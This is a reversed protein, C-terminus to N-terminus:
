VVPPVLDGRSKGASHGRKKPPLAVGSHQIAAARAICDAAWQEEQAKVEATPVIFPNTHLRIGYSLGKNPCACKKGVLMGCLCTRTASRPDDKCDVCYQWKKGHAPCKTLSNIVSHKKCTGKKRIIKLHLKDRSDCELMCFPCFYNRFLGTLFRTTQWQTATPPISAVAEKVCGRCMIKTRYKNKRCNNTEHSANTCIPHELCRIGLAKKEVNLRVPGFGDVDRDTPRQDNIHLRPNLVLVPPPAVPPPPAAFLLNFTPLRVDTFTQGLLSPELPPLEPQPDGPNRTNQRPAVSTLTLVPLIISLM